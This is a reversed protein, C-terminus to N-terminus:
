FSKKHTTFQLRSSESSSLITKNGWIMKLYEYNLEGQKRKVKYLKYMGDFWKM